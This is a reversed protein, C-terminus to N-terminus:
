APAAPPPTLLATSFVRVLEDGSAPMVVHGRFVGPPEGLADAPAPGSYLALAPIGRTLPHCQLEQALAEGLPGGDLRPACLLVDFGGSPLRALAQAYSGCHEVTAGLRELMLRITLATSHRNEVCLVRLGNLRPAAPEPGPERAAAVLAPPPELPLDVTFSAGHGPGDSEALIYGGLQQVINRTITLGLGLGGHRVARAEGQHFTDFIHALDHPTIGVGHDRVQLQLRQHTAALSVQVATGNHSAHVANSILNWAVQELRCADTLLPVPAPPAQFVVQIGRALAEAQVIEVANRVVAVADHPQFELRLQGTLIRSIDLLDGILRSQVKVNHIIHQAADAVLAPNGGGHRLLEAWYLTSQLPTRLEHSAMALFTDKLHGIREAEALAAYATADPTERAHPNAPPEPPPSPRPEAPPRAAPPRRAPPAWVQPLAHFLAVATFGTTLASLYEAPEELRQGPLWLALVAFWQALGVSLLVVALLVFPWGAGFAQRRPAWRLLAVAIAMAALGVLVGSVTRTWHAAHPPWGGREVLASLAMPVAVVSVAAAGLGVWQAKHPNMREEREPVSPGNGRGKARAGSLASLRM